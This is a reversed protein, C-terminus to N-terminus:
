CLLPHSRMADCRMASCLVVVAAFDMGVVVADASICACMARWAYRVRADVNDAVYPASCVKCVIRGGQVRGFFSVPASSHPNAASGRGQCEKLLGKREPM